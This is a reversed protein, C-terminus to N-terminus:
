YNGRFGKLAYRSGLASGIAGMFAIDRWDPNTYDTRSIIGIIVTVSASLGTIGAIYGMQSLSMPGM